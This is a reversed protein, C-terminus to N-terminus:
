PSDDLVVVTATLEKQPDYDKLLSRVKLGLELELREKLLVKFRDMLKVDVARSLSPEAQDLISQSPIRCHDALIVLYPGVSEVKVSRAGSRFIKQNVQNYVRIIEQKFRGGAKM